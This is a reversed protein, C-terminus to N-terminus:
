ATRATTEVEKEELGAQLLNLAANEDQDFEVGCGECTMVVPTKDIGRNVHGCETHKLTTLAAECKRVREKGFVEVALELLRGIAAANRYRVVVGNEEEPGPTRRMDTVRLKEVFLRQYQVALAQLKERYFQDRWALVRQRLRTNHQEARKDVDRWANLTIFMETDGEHWQDRWRLVLRALRDASRWQSLAVTATRMWEPVHNTTTALYQVLQGRVENFLLDRQSQWEEVERWQKLRSQPIVIEGKKGDNGQWCAVRLGDDVKRWGVDMGASHQTGSQYKEPWEDQSLVFVVKCLLRQGQRYRCYYVWKVAASTPLPRHMIFPVTAWIPQRGNSGIRFRLAMDCARFQSRLGGRSPSHARHYHLRLERLQLRTDSANPRLLDDTSLPNSAQIQVALRGTGDYRKFKPADGAHPITQETVLYTGWACRCEARLRRVTAKAEEEISGWAQLLAPDQKVREREVRLEGALLRRREKLVALEEISAAERVKRRQAASLQKMAVRTEEVAADAAVVREELVALLPFMERRVQQIRERRQRENEVLRNRYDNARKLQEEIGEVNETPALAAYAYMRTPKSEHFSSM